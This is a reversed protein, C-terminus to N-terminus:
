ILQQHLFSLLNHTNGVLKSSRTATPTLNMIYYYSPLNAYLDCFCIAHLCMDSIQLIFSLYVVALILFELIEMVVILEHIYGRM